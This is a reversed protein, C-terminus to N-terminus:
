RIRRYTVSLFAQFLGSARLEAPNYALVVKANSPYHAVDDVDLVTNRVVDLVAETFDILPDVAARNTADDATFTVRQTIALQQEYDLAHRARDQREVGISAPVVIIQLSDLSADPLDFRPAYQRSVTFVLPLPPDLAEDALAAVLADAIDISLSV